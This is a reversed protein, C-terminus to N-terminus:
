KILSRLIQELRDFETSKSLFYDAGLEMCKKLYQSRPYNTFILIITEPHDKKIKRLIDIGSGKPIRIDLIVADPKLEKISNIVQPATFAQGVVEIEPIELLMETIRECIMASDNAIFVKM